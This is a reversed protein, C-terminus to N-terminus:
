IFYNVEDQLEFERIFQLLSSIWKNFFSTKEDILIKSGGFTLQKKQRTNGNNENKYIENLEDENGIENNDYNNNYNENVFNKEKEKVKNDFIEKDRQMDKEKGREIDIEKEKEKEKEILRIMTFDNKDFYKFFNKFIKKNDSSYNAINTDKVFLKNKKKKADLPCYDHNYIEYIFKKFKPINKSPYKSIIEKTLYYDAIFENPRKWFVNSACEQKM